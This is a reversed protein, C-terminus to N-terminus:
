LQIVNAGYWGSHIESHFYDTKPHNYLKSYIVGFEDPAGVDKAYFHNKTPQHSYALGKFVRRHIEGCVSTSIGNLSLFTNEVIEYTQEITLTPNYKLLSRYIDTITMRLWIGECIGSENIRKVGIGRKYRFEMITCLMRVFFKEISEGEEQAIISGESILTLTGMAKIHAEIKEFSNITPTM